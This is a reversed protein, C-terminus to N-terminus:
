GTTSRRRRQEPTDVARQDQHAEVRPVLEGVDARAWAAPPPAIRQVTGSNGGMYPWLVEPILISGDAQQHNEMVGILARGVAIGSGNLTHVHAITKGDASRFRANM